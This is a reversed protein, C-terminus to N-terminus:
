KLDLTLIQFSAQSIKNADEAIRNGKRSEALEDLMITTQWVSNALDAAMIGTQAVMLGTQAAM